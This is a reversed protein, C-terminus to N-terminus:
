SSPHQPVNPYSHPHPPPPNKLHYLIYLSRCTEKAASSNWNNLQDPMQKSPRFSQTTILCQTHHSVANPIVFSQKRDSLNNQKEKIYKWTSTKTQDGTHSSALLIKVGSLTLASGGALEVRSQQHPRQYVHYYQWVPLNYAHM